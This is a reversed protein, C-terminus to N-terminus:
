IKKLQVYIDRRMQPISFKRLSRVKREFKKWLAQSQVLNRRAKYTERGNVNDCFQAKHTARFVIFM